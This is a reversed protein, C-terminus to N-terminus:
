APHETATKGKQSKAPMSAIGRVTTASDPTDLFDVVDKRSRKLMLTDSSQETGRSPGTAGALPKAPAKKAKVAM